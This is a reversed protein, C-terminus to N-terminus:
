IADKKRGLFVQKSGCNLCPRRLLLAAKKHAIPVTFLEWEKDCRGCHAHITNETM